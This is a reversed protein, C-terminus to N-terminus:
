TLDGTKCGISLGNLRRDPSRNDQRRSEGNGARKGGEGEAVPQKVDESCLKAMPCRCEGDEDQGLDHPRKGPGGDV